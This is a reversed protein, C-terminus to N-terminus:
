SAACSDSPYPGQPVAVPPCVAHLILTVCLVALVKKALAHGAERPAFQDSQVACARLPQFQQLQLCGGDACACLCTVPVCCCTQAKAGGEGLVGAFSHLMGQGCSAAKVQFTFSPLCM